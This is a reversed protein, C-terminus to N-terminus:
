FRVECDSGSTGVDKNRREIADVGCSTDRARIEDTNVVSSQKSKDVISGNCNGQGQKGMAELPVYTFLKESAATQAHEDMEWRSSSNAINLSGMKSTLSSTIMGPLGSHHALPYLLPTNNGTAACRDPTQPVTERTQSYSVTSISNQAMGLPSVFSGQAMVDTAQILFCFNIFMGFPNLSTLFM